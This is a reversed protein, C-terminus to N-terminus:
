ACATGEAVDMDVGWLTRAGGYSQSLDEIRLLSM